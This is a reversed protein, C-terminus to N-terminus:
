STEYGPDIRALAIEPETMGLEDLLAPTTMAAQAVREGAAAITEAAHRIRAEDRDGLLFPRLYPSHLRDGFTLKEARMREAFRRCFPASLEDDDRLLAHWEAALDM